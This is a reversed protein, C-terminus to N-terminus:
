WFSRSFRMSSSFSAFLISISPLSRAYALSSSSRRACSLADLSSSSFFCAAAAAAVAAAEDLLRAVVEFEATVEPLTPDAEADPLDAKIRAPASIDVAAAVAECIDALSGALCDKLWFKM